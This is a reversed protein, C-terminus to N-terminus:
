KNDPDIKANAQLVVDSVGAGKEIMIVSDGTKAEIKSAALAERKTPTGDAYTDVTNIRVTVGDKTATIDVYNGGRRGGNAAPLYEESMRQGGGTILWGDNELVTAIDSNQQRTAESGLRGGYTRDANHVLM